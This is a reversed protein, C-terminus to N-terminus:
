RCELLVELLEERSIFETPTGHEAYEFDWIDKDLKAQASVVKCCDIVSGGGVALIFDINNEKAIRAGEQVKGYTPNSMIGTFETIQKGAAKLLGVLEDYIGNKKISGGGYALLVNEGVRALEATLNKEAAKEGFYVKVPYRYTFSEM